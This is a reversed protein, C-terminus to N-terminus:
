GTVESYGAELKEEVSMTDPMESAAQIANLIGGNDLRMLRDIIDM